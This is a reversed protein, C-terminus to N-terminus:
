AAGEQRALAAIEQCKAMEAKRAERWRMVEPAQARGAAMREEIITLRRTAERGVEKLQAEVYPGPWRRNKRVDELLEPAWGEAIAARGTAHAFVARMLPSPGTDPDQMDLAWKLIENAIPIRDRDKGAPQEAVREELAKLNLPTMYALRACLDDIMEKYKAATMKAPRALGRRELPEVLLERVRRAGAQQEASDM